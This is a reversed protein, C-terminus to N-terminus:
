MTVNPYVQRLTGLQKICLELQSRLLAVNIDQQDDDNKIAYHCILFKSIRGLVCYGKEAQILLIKLQDSKQADAYSKFINAGLAAITKGKNHDGAVCLLSGDIKMVVSTNICNYDIYSHLVKKVNSWNVYRQPPDEEKLDM